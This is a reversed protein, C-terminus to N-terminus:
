SSEYSKEENKIDKLIMDLKSFYDKSSYRKVAYDRCTKIINDNKRKMKNVIQFLQDINKAEVLTLVESNGLYPMGSINFCLLPTGCALAELCANPMTDLLSPFVFLDGLSYYNALIDQDTIYGIPIFNKPLGKKLATYGVQVFIFRKDNEFRKALEVFYKTGKRENESPAVCVLVIKEKDIGLKEKLSNINRPYYFDTDVAEDIIATRMKKLLPSKQGAIITYEPGVFVAHKMKSYAHKKIQYIQRTKDCFWSKPYERLQPCNGCGNLYNKCGNSYGCKGLFPYEETMVYIFTINDEIIYDWFLKENLYYGHLGIGYIVNIKRKKLLAILRKTAFYSFGGQFGTLRCMFAHYYHELESDIRYLDDQRILKGHGYCFIVSVGRKKFYKLLGCAIKGTSKDAVSNIIAIRNEKVKGM